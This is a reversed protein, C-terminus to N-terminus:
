GCTVKVSGLHGDVVTGESEVVICSGDKPGEVTAAKYDHHNCTMRSFSFTGPGCVKVAEAAAGFDSCVGDQIEDSDDKFIADGAATKGTQFHMKVNPGCRKTDAEHLVLSASTLM